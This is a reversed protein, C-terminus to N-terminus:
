HSIQVELEALGQRGRASQLQAGDGGGGESGTENGSVSDTVGRVIPPLPQLVKRAENGTM